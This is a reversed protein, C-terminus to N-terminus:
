NPVRLLRFGSGGSDSAGRSVRVLAGATVDYVLFRTDAATVSLDFRVAEAGGASIGVVNSTPRIMGCDPDSRFAYGPNAATGDNVFFQKWGISSTGFTFTNDSGPTMSTTDFEFVLTGGCSVGLSDSGTSYVGTNTDTRVALGPAAATGGAFKLLLSDVIAWTTVGNYLNNLWTVIDSFNTNVQAAQATTNAAFTNTVSLTAM